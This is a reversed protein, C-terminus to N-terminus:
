RSKNQFMSGFKECRNVTVQASMTTERAIPPKHNQYKKRLKFEIGSKGTCSTSALSTRSGAWPQLDLVRSQRSRIRAGPNSDAPHTHNERPMPLPRSQPLQEAKPGRGHSPHM